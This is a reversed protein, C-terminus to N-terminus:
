PKRAATMARHQADDMAAVWDLVDVIRDQTPEEQPAALAARAAAWAAPKRRQYEHQIGELVAATAVDRVDQKMADFQDALDKLAVLEELAKRLDSM